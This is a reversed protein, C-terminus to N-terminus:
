KQWTPLLFDIKDRASENRPTKNLFHRLLLILGDSDVMSSTQLFQRLQHVQIKDDMANLWQRAQEVSESAASEVGSELEPCAPVEIVFERALEAYIPYLRLAGSWLAALDPSSEAPGGTQGSSPQSPEPQSPTM